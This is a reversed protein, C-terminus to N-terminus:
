TTLGTYAFRYSTCIQSCLEVTMTSSALNNQGCGGANPYCSISNVTAINNCQTSDLGMEIFVDNYGCASTGM